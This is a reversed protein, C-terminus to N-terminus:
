ENDDGNSKKVWGNNKLQKKRCCRSCEVYEVTEIGGYNQKKYSYEHPQHGFVKCLLASFNM